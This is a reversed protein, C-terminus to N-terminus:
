QAAGSLTRYNLEESLDVESLAEVYGLIREDEVKRAARLAPLDAFVIANLKNPHNGTGTLRRMWIRDTTLLHSLTGHLSEFYAGANRRYLEDPLASAMKYLRGNAWANYKAMLLFYSKM